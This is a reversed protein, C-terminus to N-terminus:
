LWRCEHKLMGFLIGNAEGFLEKLTAEETFGLKRTLRLSRTNREDVIATIRRLRCQLFPYRFWARLFMPTLFSPTSSAVTIECNWESFRSFVVVGKIRDGVSALTRVSRSEFETKLLM